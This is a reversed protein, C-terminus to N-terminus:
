AVDLTRPSGVCFFLFINVVLAAFWRFIDLVM